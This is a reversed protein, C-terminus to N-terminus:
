NLYDLQVTLKKVGISNFISHAQKIIYCPDSNSTVEIKLSGIHVESCLTWFHQEQVSIVGPLQSVKSYAGPLLHDLEQPQRQMLIGKSEKILSFVSVAILLSIFMSCIPDAIMWGFLQMLIASVIVGVSGLADALIHLFVGKM